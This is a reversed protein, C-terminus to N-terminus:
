EMALFTKLFDIEDEIKTLLNAADNTFYDDLLEFEKAYDGLLKCTM